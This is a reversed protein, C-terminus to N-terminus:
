EAATGGTATGERYCQFAKYLTNGNPDTYPCTATGCEGIMDPKKICESVCDDKPKKCDEPVPAMVQGGGSSVFQSCFDVECVYNSGKAPANGTYCLSESDAVREGELVECDEPFNYDESSVLGENQIQNNRGFLNGFFNRFRDGFPTRTTVKDYANNSGPFDGGQVASQEASMESARNRFLGLFGRRETEGSISDAGASISACSVEECSPPNTGPSTQGNYCKRGNTGPVIQGKLEKCNVQSADSLGENTVVEAAAEGEIKINYEEDLAIKEEESLEVGADAKAQVSDYIVEEGAPVAGSCAGNSCDCEKFVSAIEDGDCYLELLWPGEEVPPASIANSAKCFDDYSGELSTRTGKVYYNIGGDTDECFPFPTHSFSVYSVCSTTSCYYIDQVYLMNGENTLYSDGESLLSTLVGGIQFKVGTSSIFSLFIVEDLHNLTHGEYLICNGSSDCSSQYTPTTELESKSTDIVINSADTAVINGHMKAWIGTFAGASVISILLLVVLLFGFFLVGEKRMSPVFLFSYKFKITIFKGRRLRGM